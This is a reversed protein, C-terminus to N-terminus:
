CTFGRADRQFRWRSRTSAFRWPARSRAARIVEEIRPVDREARHALFCLTIHLVEPRMPRLASDTLAKSQWASIGARVEEPLDLAVFLRAKSEAAPESSVEAM